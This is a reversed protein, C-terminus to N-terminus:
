NQHGKIKIIANRELLLRIIDIMSECILIMYIYMHKLILVECKFENTLKFKGM